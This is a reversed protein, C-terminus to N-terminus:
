TQKCIRVLHRQAIMGPVYLPIISYHINEADLGDMEHKSRVAKMALLCGTKQLLRYAQQYFRHTDSYARSIVTDYYAELSWQETRQCAIKVNKLGLELCAQRIFRIKKHNSDLLTCEIDPRAIALLIGPLGAGTGVDLLCGDGLHPLVVLSDMVHLTLMQWPDRVATLNYAQNWKNLLLIYDIIQGTMDTNLSLRTDDLYTCLQGHLAAHSASKPM